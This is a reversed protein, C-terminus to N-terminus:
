VEWDPLSATTRETNLLGDVFIHYNDNRKEVTDIDVLILSKQRMLTFFEAVSLDDVTMQTLDIQYIQQNRRMLLQPNVKGDASVKGVRMIRYNAGVFTYNVNVLFQLLAAGSIGQQKLNAVMTKIDFYNIQDQTHVRRLWHQYDRLSTRNAMLLDPLIKVMLESMLDKGYFVNLGRPKIGLKMRAMDNFNEGSHGLVPEVRQTMTPEADVAVKDTYYGFRFHGRNKGVAIIMARVGDIQNLLNVAIRAFNFCTVPTEATVQEVAQFSDQYNDNLNKRHERYFFGEDYQLVQCLRLYVYLARGEPTRDPCAALNLQKLLKPNVQFEEEDVYLHHYPSAKGSRNGVPNFFRSPTDEMM